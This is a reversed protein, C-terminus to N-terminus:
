GTQAPETAGEAPAAVPRGDRLAAVTAAVRPHSRLDELLVPRPGAGTDEALPLQWNPYADDQTGPVNPQRPDLVVDSLAALVLRCPSRAMLAHMADV